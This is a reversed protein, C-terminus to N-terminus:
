VNVFAEIVKKNTGLLEEILDLTWSAIDPDQIIIHETQAWYNFYDIASTLPSIDEHLLLNAISFSIEERTM